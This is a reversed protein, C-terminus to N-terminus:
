EAKSGLAGSCKLIPTHLKYNHHSVSSIIEKERRKGFGLELIKSSTPYSVGCDWPNELNAEHTAHVAPKFVLCSSFRVNNKYFYYPYKSPTSKM